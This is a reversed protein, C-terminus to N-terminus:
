RILQEPDVVRIALRTPNYAVLGWFISPNVCEGTIMTMRGLVQDNGWVCSPSFLAFRSRGVVLSAWSTKITVCRSLGILSEALDAVLVSLHMAFWVM